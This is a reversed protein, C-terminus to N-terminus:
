TPPLTRPASSPPNVKAALDEPLYRAAEKRAASSIDEFRNSNLIKEIVDLRGNWCSCILATGLDKPLVHPNALLGSVDGGTQAALILDVGPHPRQDLETALYPASNVAELFLGRFQDSDLHVIVRDALQPFLDGRGREIARKSAFLILPIDKTQVILNALSFDEQSGKKRHQGALVVSYRAKDDLSLYASVDLYSDEALSTWNASSLTM